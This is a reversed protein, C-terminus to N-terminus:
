HALSGNNECSRESAGSEALSDLLLSEGTVREISRIAEIFEKGLAVFFGRHEDADLTGLKDIEKSVATVKRKISSVDQPKNTNRAEVESCRAATRSKGERGALQEVEEWVPAREGEPVSMLPRAQAENAPATGIEQEIEHIIKTAAAERQAQRINLGFRDAVYACFTNHTSAYLKQEMIVMMSDRANSFQLDIRNEHFTLLAQEDDSLNRIESYAVLQDNSSFAVALVSM